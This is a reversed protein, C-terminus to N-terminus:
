GDHEGFALLNLAAFMMQHDSASVAHRNHKGDVWADLNREDDDFLIANSQVDVARQKPMGYPVVKVEDVAPFHKRCWALKSTTVARAYEPSSGHFLWSIIGVHWGRAHLADITDRMREEDYMPKAVDYPRTSGASAEDLWGDVGYLDALTGDMDFYIAKTGDAVAASTMTMADETGTTVTKMNKM